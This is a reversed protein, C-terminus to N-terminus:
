ALDLKEPPYVGIFPPLSEFILNNRPLVSVSNLVLYNNEKLEFNTKGLKQGGPIFKPNRNFNKTSLPCIEVAFNSINRIIYGPHTFKDERFTAPFVHPSNRTFREWHRDGIAIFIWGTDWYEMPIRAFAMLLPSIDRESKEMGPINAINDIDELLRSLGKDGLKARPRKGVEKRNKTNAM